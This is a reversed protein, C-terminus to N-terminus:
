PNQVPRDIAPPPACPRQETPLAGRGSGESLAQPTPGPQRFSALSHPRRSYVSPSLAQSSRYAASRRRVRSFRRRDRPRRAQWLSPLTGVSIAKLLARLGEVSDHLMQIYSELPEGELLATATTIHKDLLADLEVNFTEDRSAAKALVGLLLDTVQFSLWLHAGRVM